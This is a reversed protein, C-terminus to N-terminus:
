HFFCVHVSLGPVAAPAALQARGPPVRPASGAPPAHEAGGRPSDSPERADGLGQPM